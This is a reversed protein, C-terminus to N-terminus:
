HNPKNAQWAAEEERMEDRIRIVTSKGVRAIRQARSLSTGAALLARIREQKHASVRPRGLHKGQRRAREMGERTREITLERVYEAMSAFVNLQMRGAPTTSDIAQRHLYLDIGLARLEAVTQVFHALSRGLRSIETCALVDFKAGVADGLMRDLGPRKDRGKSGSIGEDLYEAVIVHGRAQAGDRLAMQQNAVTQDRTSVRCYLAVSAM